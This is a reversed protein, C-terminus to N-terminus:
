ERGEGAVRQCATLQRVVDNAEAALRLAAEGDAGPFGSPASADRGGATAATAPVAARAAALQQDRVRVAARWRAVAADLDKKGDEIGKQYAASTATMDEAARREIRRADQVIATTQQAQAQGTQAQDREALVGRLAWGSWAALALLAAAIGLRWQM